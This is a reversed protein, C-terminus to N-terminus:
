SKASSSEERLFPMLERQSEAQALKNSQHIQLSLYVLTALVALAGLIEATAGIADWNM